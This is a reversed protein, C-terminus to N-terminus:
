VSIMHRIDTKIEEIVRAKDDNIYRKEINQEKIKDEAFDVSDALFRRCMEEYKPLAQQKERGIARLLREGDEVEIYIPVIKKDGFYARIQSYAELTEIAIYNGNELDIQGDDATFYHWPGYVTQYTRSEIIQGKALMEEYVDDSVFHYTVGDVENERIPRTTYLIVDKLDLSLDNRIESFISDKGSASKGMVCFLKGM